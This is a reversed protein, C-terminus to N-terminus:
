AETGAPEPELTPVARDGVTGRAVPWRPAPGGDPDGRGLLILRSRISNKSRGFAAALEPLSAGGDFAEALRRDDEASWPRGQNPPASRHASAWAARLGHGPEPCAAAERELASVGAFLARVVDSRQFPHDAPLPAGDAPDLGDRLRRLTQLALTLTTRDRTTPDDPAEHM